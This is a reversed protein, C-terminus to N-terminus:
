NLLIELIREFCEGYRIIDSPESARSAGAKNEAIVRFMYDTEEKLGTIKYEPHPITFDFNVVNWKFDIPRKMELTYSTIPSGGDDLPPKWSLTATTSTLNKVVPKGPTGPKGSFCLCSIDLFWKGTVAINLFLGALWHISSDQAKRM